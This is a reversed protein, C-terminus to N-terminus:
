QPRSKRKLAETLHGQIEADNPARVQAERLYRLGKEVQGAEVLAWGYTDAINADSPALSFAREAIALAGPQGRKLMIYALENHVQADDPLKKRLIEYLRQAVELQGARLYAEALMRNAMLDAPNSRAWSQVFELAQSTNGSRYYADYLNVANQTNKEYEYANRYAQIADGYKQRQMAIDGLLQQIAAERPYQAALARAQREAADLNGSVQELRAKLLLAPLYGPKSLLAMDLSYRAGEYDGASIQLQAMRQQWGADFGALQSIRKFNERALGRNGVALYTRGLTALAQLNDRSGAQVEKAIDLAKQADGTNLYLEVLMLNPRLSQPNLSRAKELWRVADQIHDTKLELQALEFLV